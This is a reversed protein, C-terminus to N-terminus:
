MRFTLSVVYFVAVAWLVNALWPPVPDPRGALGPALGLALFFGAGVLPILLPHGFVATVLFAAVGVAM